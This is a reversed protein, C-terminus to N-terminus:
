TNAKMSAVSMIDAIGPPATDRPPRVIRGMEDNSEYRM